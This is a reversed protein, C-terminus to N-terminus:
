PPALHRYLEPNEALFGPHARLFRIVEEAALGPVAALDPL